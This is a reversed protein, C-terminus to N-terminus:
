DHEGWRETQADTNEKKQNHLKSCREQTGDCDQLYPCKKCVPSKRWDVGM